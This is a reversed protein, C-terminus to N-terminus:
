VDLYNKYIPLAVQKLSIKIENNINGVVEDSEPSAILLAGDMIILDIYLCIVFRYADKIYDKVNTDPLLNTMFNEVKLSSIDSSMLIQKLLRLLKSDMGEFEPTEPLEFLSLDSGFDPTTNNCLVPNGIARKTNCSYFFYEKLDRWFVMPIKLNAEPTATSIEELQCDEVEFDWAGHDTCSILNEGEINFGPNCKIEVFTGLPYDTLKYKIVGSDSAYILVGNAPNELSPCDYISKCHPINDSWNGNAMCTIVESGVLNFGDECTFKAQGNYSTKTLSLRGNSPTKLPNCKVVKCFPMKSLEWKSTRLCFVFPNGEIKFGESCKVFATQDGYIIIGNDITLNQECPKCFASQTIIIDGVTKFKM